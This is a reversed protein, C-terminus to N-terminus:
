GPVPVPKGYAVLRLDPNDNCQFTAYSMKVLGLGPRRMLKEGSPQLRIGHERWWRRFEPSLSKLEEVLGVFEPADSWFDFTARFSDLLSRAEREWEPLAREDRPRHVDSLAHQAKTGPNQFLRSLARGSEPELV